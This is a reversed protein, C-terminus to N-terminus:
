YETIPLSFTFTAGKADVNNEGWIAGGHAEVISKCIFLGIGTGGPSNTAFKSFLKPKIDPDIGPGTDKISVIVQRDKKQTKITISRGAEETTFKIANSLLNSIVESIRVKDANVFISEKELPQIFVLQIKEKSLETDLDNIVHQISEILNIKEKDLKLSRDEIKTMDLMNQELRLLKKANRIIIDVDEIDNSVGAASGSIRRRLLEALALIPQIPARLEHAAINIFENKLEDKKKLEDNAAEIKRTLDDHNKILEKMSTTMSNFSETLVSLEDSGKQRVLVDFNGKKIKSTAQTLDFIPKLMRAVLHLILILISVILIAFFIQLLLLDNSNEDTQQALQAVLRDSPTILDSGMSEFQKKLSLQDMEKTKTMLPTKTTAKVQQFPTLIQSVSTRYLNCNRNVANWLYFDVGSIMGGQKLAVINSQLRNLAVKLQSADSTGDLYKETQLILLAILYRDAGAINISKGLSSQQSQFYALVGFSGVILIIEIIVLLTIKLRVKSNIREFLNPM